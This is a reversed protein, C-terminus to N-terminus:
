RSASQELWALVEREFQHATMVVERAEPTRTSLARITQGYKAMKPYTKLLRVPEWVMSGFTKRLEILNETHEKLSRFKNPIIGLVRNPTRGRQQRRLSANEVQQFVDSLAFLSLAELETVYVFANMAEYIVGDFLNMSPGTDILIVSLRYKETMDQLLAEFKTEDALLWPIQFTNPGAPLAYINGPQIPPADDPAQVVEGSDNILALPALYSDLPVQRVHEELPLLLFHPDDPTGGDPIGILAHFLGDEQELGLLRAAHSGGQSDTDVIGVNHGRLALEGALNVLNSSKGPGGKRNVFAVRICINHDIMYPAILGDTLWTWDTQM